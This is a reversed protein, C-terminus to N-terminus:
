GDRGDRTSLVKSKAWALGDAFSRSNVPVGGADHERLAAAGKGAEDRFELLVRRGGSVAREFPLGLTRLLAAEEFSAVTLRDGGIAGQPKMQGNM